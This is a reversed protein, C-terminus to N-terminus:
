VPRYPEEQVLHGILLKLFFVPIFWEMGRTPPLLYFNVLLTIVYLGAAVPRQLYLPVAQLILASGMLLGFFLGAWLWDHLRFLYAVIFLHLAHFAVFSLHDKITQGPRHYWRKTTSSANAIVGGGLDVALLVAFILCRTCAFLSQSTGYLVMAAGSLLAFSIILINEARTAGPGIFEDWQGLLGKRPEPCEWEIRTNM